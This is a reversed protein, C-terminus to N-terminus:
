VDHAMLESGISIALRRRSSLSTLIRPCRTAFCRPGTL